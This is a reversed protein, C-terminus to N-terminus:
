KRIECVTVFLYVCKVSGLKNYFIFEDVPVPCLRLCYVLMVRMVKKAANAREDVVVEWEM